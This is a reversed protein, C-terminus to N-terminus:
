ETLWKRIQENMIENNITDSESVQEISNMLRAKQKETLEDIIDTDKNQNGYASIVDYFNELLKEDEISDILKHFESKIKDKEM